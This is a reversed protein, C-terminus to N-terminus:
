DPQHEIVHSAIFADFTGHHELPVADILPGDRWVFDVEEINAVDVGSTGRYKETLESKTGVDIIKTNWGQTKPAIPNFSAGIEIISATRAVSELLIDARTTM